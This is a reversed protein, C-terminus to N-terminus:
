VPRFRSNPLVLGGESRAARGTIDAWACAGAPSRTRSWQAHCLQCRFTQAVGITRVLLYPHGDMGSPGKTCYFCTATSAAEKPPSEAHPPTKPMTVCYAGQPGRLGHAAFM